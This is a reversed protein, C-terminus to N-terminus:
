ADATSSLEPSYQIPHILPQSNFFLRHQNVTLRSNAIWQIVLPYIIHEKELVRKALSEVTDDPMVPVKAQLVLPGDDLEPTVFHVTAGHEKEGADIARQHTNLGRYKPLLSPHINILKDQYHNVFGESLIRMFGALVVLEPQQEDILLQLARDYDERSEYDSDELLATKIGARQARELGYANRKSSVVLKIDVPLSPNDQSGAPNYAADIIAQLNSGNGSILVVIPLRKIPPSGDSM